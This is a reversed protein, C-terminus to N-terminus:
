GVQRMFDKLPQRLPGDLVILEPIGGAATGVELASCGHVLKPQATACVSLDNHVRLRIDLLSTAQEVNLSILRAPTSSVVELQVLRGNIEYQTATKKVVTARPNLCQVQWALADLLQEGM